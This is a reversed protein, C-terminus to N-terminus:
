CGINEATGKLTYTDGVVWLSEGEGPPVHVGRKSGMEVITSREETNTARFQEAAQWSTSANM